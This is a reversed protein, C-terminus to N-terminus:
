SIHAYLSGDATLIFIAPSHATSGAAYPPESLEGGAPTYPLEPHLIVQKKGDDASWEVDFQKATSNLIMAIDRLKFYVDGGIDYAWLSVNEGGASLSYRIPSAAFDSGSSDAALAPMNPGIAMFVGAAVLMICLIRKITKM